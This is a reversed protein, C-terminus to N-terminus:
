ASLSVTLASLAALRAPSGSPPRSRRGDQGGAARKRWLSFSALWASAGAWESVPGIMASRPVVTVQFMSPLGASATLPEM